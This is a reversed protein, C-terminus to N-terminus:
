SETVSGGAGDNAPAAKKDAERRSIFEDGRTKLQRMASEDSKAQDLAWLLAGCLTGRDVPFDVMEVIGGLEILRRTREKRAADKREQVIKFAALKAEEARENIKELRVLADLDRLEKKTPDTLTALEVLMKQTDSPARLGGIYAVQASVWEDMAM